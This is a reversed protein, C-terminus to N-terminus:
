VVLVRGFARATRLDDDTAPAAGVAAVTEDGRAMQGLRFDVNANKNARSFSEGYGSNTATLRSRALFAATGTM